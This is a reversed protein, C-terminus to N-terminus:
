HLQIHMSYAYNTSLPVYVGFVTSISGNSQTTNQSQTIMGLQVSACWAFSSITQEYQAIDTLSSMNGDIDIISHNVDLSTITGGEPLFNQLDNLIPNWQYESNQITKIQKMFQQYLGSIEEENLREPNSLYQTQENKLFSIKEQQIFLKAHLFQNFSFVLLLFLLFVTMPLLLLLFREKIPHSEQPLLNIEMM